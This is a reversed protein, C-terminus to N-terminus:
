NGSSPMGPLPMNSNWIDRHLKWSGDAGKKWVVIYKGSDQLGGPMSYTYKGVEIALDGAGMVEDTTLALNTAGMSNFSGILEQIANTGQAMDMNPPMAIADETYWAAVGAADGQNFAACFKANNEEITKRVATWDMQPASCALLGFLAVLVFLM